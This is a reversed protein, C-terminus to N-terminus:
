PRVARRALSLTLAAVAAVTAPLAYLGAALASLDYISSLVNGSGIGLLGVLLLGGGFVVLLLPLGALDERSPV